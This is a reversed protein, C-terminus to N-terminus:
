PTGFSCQTEQSKRVASITQIYAEVEDERWFRRGGIKFPVPLQNQHRHLWMASVGGLRKRLEHIQILRTEDRSKPQYDNNSM